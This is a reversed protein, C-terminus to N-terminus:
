SNAVFFILIEFLGIKFLCHDVELSKKCIHHGQLPLSKHLTRSHQNSHFYTSLTNVEARICAQLRKRFLLVSKKIFKTSLRELYSKSCSKWNQKIKRSRYTPKINRLCIGTKYAQNIQIFLLICMITTTFIISKFVPSLM